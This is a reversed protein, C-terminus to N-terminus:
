PFHAGQSLGHRTQRDYDVDWHALAQTAARGAETAHTCDSSQIAQLVSGINEFAHRVHGQEHTQLAAMYAQWRTRVDRPLHDPDALRPMQMTAGFTVETRDLQCTGDPRRPWRWRVSWRTLADVRQGDNVDTPRAANM